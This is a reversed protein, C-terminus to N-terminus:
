EIGEPARKPAHAHSARAANRGSPSPLVPPPALSRRTVPRPRAPGGCLALRRPRPHERASRAPLHERLGLGRGSPPAPDTNAHRLSPIGGPPSTWRTESFDLNRPADHLAYTRQLARLARHAEDRAREDGGPEAAAPSVAIAWLREILSAPAGAALMMLGDFAPPGFLDIRTEACSVSPTDMDHARKSGPAGRLTTTLFGYTLDRAACLLLVLAERAPAKAVATRLDAAAAKESRGRVVTLRSLLAASPPADLLEIYDTCPEGDSFSAQVAPPCAGTPTRARAASGSPQSFAELVQPDIPADVPGASLM